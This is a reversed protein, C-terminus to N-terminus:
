VTSEAERTAVVQYVQLPTAIGKLRQTGRSLCMFTDQVHHYTQIGIVLTNAEALTMLRAAINPTEGLATSETYDKNGMEGVVAVGTHIGIRLQLPSVLQSVPANQLRTNLGPLAAILALGAQVAHQPAEDHPQPYGFYVLLTDSVQRAIYGSFRRVLTACTEQYISLIDHYDEPDLKAFLSTAGVVECFMVTLQCRAVSTLSTGCTGCFHFQPPNDSQCSACRM